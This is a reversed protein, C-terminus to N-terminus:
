AMNNAYLLGSRIWRLLYEQNVQQLYAANEKQIRPVAEKIYENIYLEYPAGEHHEPDIKWSCLDRLEPHDEAIIAYYAGQDAHIRGQWEEQWSVGSGKEYWLFHDDFLGFEIGDAIMINYVCDEGYIIRGLIKETYQILLEAEAFFAGGVPFDPVVLYEKKVASFAKRRYSELNSPQLHGLVEYTQDGTKQYYYTRGFAVRYQNDEAFRLMRALVTEDYLFDGPSIAKIYRGRMVPFASATNRVTGKNYPNAAITYAHFDRQAFYAEIVTRDFGPTGDDAVIIEFSCGRQCVVSELTAFLKPLDPCYSLVCVSVDIDPRYSIRESRVM